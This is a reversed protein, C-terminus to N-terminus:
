GDDGDVDGDDGGDDGGDGDGDMADDGDGRCSCRSVRCPSPTLVPRRVDRRHAHRAPHPHHQVEEHVAGPQGLGQVDQDLHDVHVPGLHGAGGREGGAGRGGGADNDPVQAREVGDSM